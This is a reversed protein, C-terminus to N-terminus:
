KPEDFNLGYYVHQGDSYRGEILVEGSLSQVVNNLDEVSQVPQHNLHSIVFGEEIRAERVKGERIKVVKLGFELNLKM